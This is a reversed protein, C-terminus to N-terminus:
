WSRDTKSPGAHCPEYKWRTVCPQSGHAWLRQVTHIMVFQFIRWSIHVGPWRVHRRLFRYAPGSAVTLILRPVVLQNLIPFPTCWPQINNGQKNLKYASYMRHFSLSSSYCAPILVALLWILLRMYMSSLERISSLSSSSFLRKIFSFSSLLVQSLVWCEFFTSWPM